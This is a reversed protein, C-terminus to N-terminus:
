IGIRGVAPVKIGPRALDIGAVLGLFHLELGSRVGMSFGILGRITV